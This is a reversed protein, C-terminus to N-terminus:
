MKHSPTPLEMAAHQGREARDNECRYCPCPATSALEIHKHHTVYWLEEYPPATPDEAIKRAYAHIASMMQTTCYVGTERLREIALKGAAIFHKAGTTDEFPVQRAITRAVTLM